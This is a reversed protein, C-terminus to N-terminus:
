QEDEEDNGFVLDIDIDMNWGQIPGNYISFYVVRGEENTIHRCCTHKESLKRKKYQESEYKKFKRLLALAMAEDNEGFMAVHQANKRVTYFVAM